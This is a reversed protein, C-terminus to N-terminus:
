DTKAAVSKGNDFRESPWGIRDIKPRVPYLLQPRAILGAVATADPPIALTEPLV